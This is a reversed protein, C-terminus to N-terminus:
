VKEDPNPDDKAPDSNNTTGDANNKDTEAKPDGGAGDESV